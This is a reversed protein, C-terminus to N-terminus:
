GRTPLGQGWEPERRLVYGGNQRVLRLNFMKITDSLARGFIFDLMRRDMGGKEVTLRRLHADFRIIELVESQRKPSQGLRGEALLASLRDYSCRREHAQIMEWLGQVGSLLDQRRLRNTQYVARIKGTDRCNLARCELPRHDYIRCGRSRRDFFFCTWGPPRGKIKILEKSLVTLGGSVNERVLEGARITFLSSAPIRGEDVLTRDEGHLAPGGKECCSGCRNCRHRM